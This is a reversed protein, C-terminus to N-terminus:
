GRSQPLSEAFDDITMQYQVSIRMQESMWYPIKAVENSRIKSRRHKDREKKKYKTELAELGIIPFNGWLLASGLKIRHRGLKESFFKSAGLVNEICWYRPKYQEILKITQELLTMDPEFDVGERIAIARPASYALSFEYCPPSAWLFDVNGPNWQELTMVDKVITGEVEHEGGVGFIPNNDIRTVHWGNQAFAESAGGLGSFLDIMRMM